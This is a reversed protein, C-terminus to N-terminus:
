ADVLYQDAYHRHARIRNYDYDIAGAREECWDFYDPLAGRLAQASQNQGPDFWPWWVHSRKRETQELFDRASEHVFVGFPAARPEGQVAYVIPMGLLISDKYAQHQQFINSVNAPVNQGHIVGGFAVACKVLFRHENQTTNTFLDALRSFVESLFSRMEERNPTVIFVGDMVPYLTVHQGPAELVAVHLKFVFNATVPLSRLMTARIGMVDLWAVYADSAQPLLNANFYPNNIIPPNAVETEAGSGL